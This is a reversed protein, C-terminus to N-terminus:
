RLRSGPRPVRDQGGGQLRAAPPDQHQGGRLRRHERPGGARVEGPALGHQRGPQVHGQQLGDGSYAQQRAFEPPPYSSYWSWSM